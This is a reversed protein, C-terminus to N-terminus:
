SRWKHFLWLYKFKFSKEESLVINSHRCEEESLVYKWKVTTMLWLRLRIFGYGTNLGAYFEPQYLYKSTKEICIRRCKLPSVDVCDVVQNWKRTIETTLKILMGSLIRSKTISSLQQLQVWARCIITICRWRIHVYISVSKARVSSVAGTPESRQCWTISYAPRFQAATQPVWYSTVPVPKHSSRQTTPFRDTSRCYVDRVPRLCFSADDTPM